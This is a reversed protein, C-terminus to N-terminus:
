NIRSDENNNIRNNSTREYRKDKWNPNYYMLYDESTKNIIRFKYKKLLFGLKNSKHIRAYLEKTKSWFLIKLLYDAYKKNAEITLYYKSEEKNILLFGNVKQNDKAIIGQSKNQLCQNIIRKITSASIADVRDSM